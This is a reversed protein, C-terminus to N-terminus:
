GNGARPPDSDGMQEWLVRQEGASYKLAQSVQRDEQQVILVQLFSALRMNRQIGAGSGLFLERHLRQSVSDNIQYFGSRTRYLLLDEHQITIQLKYLLKM